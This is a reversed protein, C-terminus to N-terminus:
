TVFFIGAELGFRLYEELSTRLNALRQPQKLFAFAGMEAGDEAGTRIEEACTPGLQGYAPDGYRTSTFAPRLRGLVSRTISEAQAATLAAGLRAAEAELAAAVALEPQCRFRRPTQAGPPVYSFRACGAQRRAVHVRHSFITESALTLEKVHAPGLVTVRELTTPPGPLAGAADGGIAPLFLPGALGLEALTTNDGPAHDFAPVVGGAGPLIVLRDPDSLSGVLARAFAPAASVARLAAGLRNRAQILTTPSPTLTITHAEAGFAATVAPAPASLAPFPALPGSIVALRQAATDRSLGLLRASPDGEAADITVEAPVGPLIVLRNDVTIVRAEGFARTPRVNRIASQLRDRAQTLNAPAASLTVPHPGDGGITVRLAPAAPLGAPFASLDGSVLAPTLEAPHGRLPSEIISDQVRLAAMQEPLRLPGTISRTVNLTLATNAAGVLVAPLVPQLPEGAADLRGGPVLTCHVLDLQRLSADDVVTLNGAVLLGNLALRARQNGTVSLNGILAPRRRNAAQIVLDNAALSLSLNETYTRNDDIQIVAAPHGDLAWQNLAAQITGFASASVRYLRGLAEPVAVTNHYATPSPDGPRPAFRRDYPGGGLDGSFGYAYSVAVDAPPSTLNRLVALRGLAPDVAVKTEFAFGDSARTFSRSLPPQWGPASWGSLDCISIEEPALAAGDFFVEIVPQRPDLYASVPAGQGSTLAHRYHELDDYLARRRLRGPVNAEGALHTITTETQPRNFLPADNGLPSFTYRGDPPDAVARPTARTVFYAQLRWLFIGVNPINHKGRGSAIRRVDATRASADFPTDILELENTQRLDPTRLNHPRLHNLYQTTGLLEFFEVVRANWLTADRALQELMAPTGKRRRYGLTNAIFARRTFGPAEFDHLGRVGLLDGIYPTVWEDATEIFWNAYLRAIDEEVIGIERAIIALLAKLPYGQEADRLRYIAPLLQYLRESTYRTM